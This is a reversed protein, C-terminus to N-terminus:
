VGKFDKADQHIQDEFKSTILENLTLCFSEWHLSDLSFYKGPPATTLPSRPHRPGAGIERMRTTSQKMVRDAERDRVDHAGITYQVKDECSKTHIRTHLSLMGDKM